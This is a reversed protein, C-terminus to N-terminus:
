SGIEVSLWTLTRGRDIRPAFYRSRSGPVEFVGSRAPPVRGSAWPRGTTSSSSAKLTKSSSVVRPRCDVIVASPSAKAPRPCSRFSVITAVLCANGGSCRTSRVTVSSSVCSPRKTWPVADADVAKTGTEAVSTRSSSLALVVNRASFSAAGARASVISASGPVSVSARAPRTRMRGTSVSAATM